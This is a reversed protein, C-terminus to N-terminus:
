RDGVNQKQQGPMTDGARWPLAPAISWRALRCAWPTVTLQYGRNAERSAGDLGPEACVLGM